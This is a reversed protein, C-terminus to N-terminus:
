QGTVQTWLDAFATDTTESREIWQLRKLTESDPKFGAAYIDKTAQDLLAEAAKNPTIYLVYDANRAAIEPRLMFDIFTHAMDKNPSDNVIAMNDMWITGGEKPVIFAINPNGPKDEIGVLAQAAAGSWAHAIVIEETALKLNVNASDYASVFPKQDILVQQAAALSAADTDNIPKGQYVLVAGPTERADDLMTFAMNEDQYKQLTAPDFLAAWSDPAAAFKSKNYAIGTVGWFYPVSYANGPDFYLDLLEPDINSLNTLKAKDLPALLNEKVMSQVAYDSPVVLDYGSNGARIKPIMVENADYLDIVLDVNFEKEFEEALAPDIYDTWTFLRLTTPAAATGGSTGGSTGGPAATNGGCAALIPLLLALALSLRIRM